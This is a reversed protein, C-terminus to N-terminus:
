IVDEIVILTAMHDHALFALMSVPGGEVWSADLCLLLQVGCNHPGDAVM